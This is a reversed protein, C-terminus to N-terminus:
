YPLLLAYLLQRVTLHEGRQLGLESFGPGSSGEEAAEKEVTVVEAPDAHERVVPATMLKTLSAIPRHAYPHLTYLVQGTSLNAVIAARAEIPPPESGPVPTPLSTPIPFPTQLSTPSPGAASPTPSPSPSALAAGSVGTLALM